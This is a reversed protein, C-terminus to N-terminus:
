KPPSGFQLGFLAQVSNYFESQRGYLLAPRERLAISWRTSGGGELGLALHAVVGGQQPGAIFTVIPGVGAEFFSRTSDGHNFWSRHRAELSAVLIPDADGESRFGAVAGGLAVGWEPGTSPWFRGVEVQGGVGTTVGSVAVTGSDVSPGGAVFAGACGTCGLLMLSFLHRGPKM